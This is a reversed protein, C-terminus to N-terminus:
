LIIDVGIAVRLPKEELYWVGELILLNPKINEIM